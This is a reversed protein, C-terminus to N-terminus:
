NLGTRVSVIQALYSKDPAPFSGQRLAHSLIREAEGRDAADNREILSGTPVSSVSGPRFLSDVLYSNPNLMSGDSSAPIETTSVSRQTASGAISTAATALLSATVVLALAWVLLGHATDRFYVEDTHVQVWKTRLRGALYGGFAAAVIQTVILWAIAARGVTSAAAGINWPSVASLGLGTGLSLLILSLSASVFAGGLVAGWSIGSSYAENYAPVGAIANQRDDNENNQRDDPRGIPRPVVAPASM